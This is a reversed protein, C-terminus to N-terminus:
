SLRWAVALRGLILRRPPPSPAACVPRPPRSVRQRPRLVGARREGRPVCRGGVHGGVSSAAATPRERVTTVDLSGMREVTASDRPPSSHLPVYHFVAHMASRPSHVSSGRRARSTACCSTTCTPTTRRTRPVVPRRLGRTNSSARPGHYRELHAPADATIGRAQELQACLFAALLESLPVVIRSRVWTYKDVQGRFFRSRNTGKERM